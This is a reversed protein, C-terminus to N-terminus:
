LPSTRGSFKNETELPVRTGNLFRSLLNFWSIVLIYKAAISDGYRNILAQLTADTLTAFQTLEDTAKCILTTEEDLGVVPGDKGVAAIQGDTVGVNKAMIANANWEYPANLLHASRLIIIERMRVDVGQAKFVASTLAAVGPVMDGTIAVMRSVNLNNGKYLMDTVEKPLDADKPLPISVNGVSDPANGNEKRILNEM